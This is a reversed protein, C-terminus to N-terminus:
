SAQETNQPSKLEQEDIIRQYNWLGTAIWLKECDGYIPCAKNTNIFQDSNLFITMEFPVSGMQM